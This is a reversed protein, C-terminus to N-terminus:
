REPKGLGIQALQSLGADRLERLNEQLPVRAAAVGVLQQARDVRRLPRVLRDAAVGRIRPKDARVRELEAGVISPNADVQEIRAARGTTDPEASLEGRRGTRVVAARIVAVRNGCEQETVRA